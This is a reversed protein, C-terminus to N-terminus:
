HIMWRIFGDAVPALLSVHFVLSSACDTLLIVGAVFQTMFVARTPWVSLRLGERGVLLAGLAFTANLIRGFPPSEAFDSIAGGLFVLGMLLAVREQRDTWRM